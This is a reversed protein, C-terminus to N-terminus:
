RGAVHVANTFAFPVVGRRWLVDMERKGRVVAFVHDGPLLAVSEQLEARHSASAFPAEARAGVRTGTWVELSTVDMWPPADAWAHVQRSGPAVTGGM